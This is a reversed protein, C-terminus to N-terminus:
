TETCQHALERRVVVGVLELPDREGFGLRQEGCRVALARRRDELVSGQLDLEIRGAAGVELLRMRAVLDVDDRATAAPEDVTRMAMRNRQVVHEEGLRAHDVAEFLEAVIEEDPHEEVTGFASFRVRAAVRFTRVSESADRRKVRGAGSISQTVKPDGIYEISGAGSLGIKLTKEVQVLVRGAGSVSVRADDSALEGARYDGAGSISVRQEGVRGALEVRMAGSGTVSVEKADLNGIRLSTAGSASVKLRDTKLGEARVKVAGAADIADLDRFTVTIRTGRGGLGFFGSWWSRGAGASIALTGNSVQARMSALQKSGAEIRVAESAGQVLTVDAFGDVLVRNFPPLPHQDTVVEGGGRFAGLLYFWALSVVIALAALIGLIAFVVKM